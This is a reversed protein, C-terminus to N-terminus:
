RKLDAAYSRRARGTPGPDRGLVCLLDEPIEALLTDGISM